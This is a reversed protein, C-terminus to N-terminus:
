ENRFPKVKRCGLAHTHTHTHTHTHARARTHTHSIMMMMSKTSPTMYGQIVQDHM